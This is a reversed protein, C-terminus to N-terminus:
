LYEPKYRLELSLSLRLDSSWSQLQPKPDYLYSLFIAQVETISKNILKVKHFNLKSWTIYIYKLFSEFEKKDENQIYQQFALLTKAETSSGFICCKLALFPHPCITTNKVRSSIASRRNRAQTVTHKSLILDKCSKGSDRSNARVRSPVIKLNWFILTKFILDTLAINM